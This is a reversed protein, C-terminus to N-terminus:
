DDRMERHLWARAYRWHRGVTAVSIGLIRGADEHGLGVFFRLKVLKAVQPDEQELKRIADDLALLNEPSIEREVAVDDLTIRCM